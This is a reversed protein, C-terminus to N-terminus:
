KILSSLEEKFISLIKNRFEKPITLASHIGFFKKRLEKERKKAEKLHLKKFMDILAGKYGNRYALLFALLQEDRVQKPKEYIREIKSALLPYLEKHKKEFLSREFGVEKPNCNVAATYLFAKACMPCSYCWRHNRLRKSSCSMVYKLLYPYRHCLIKMEAINYIPKVVSIVQINNNTLKELYYNKKKIYISSQDYSPYIKIKKGNIFFDDLNKENGFAIYKTRFHYAIPVLELSFALMANTGDFEEINYKISRNRFINDTEDLLIIVKEQQDKSFEKILKEKLKLENPNYEGMDNIFVLHCDIGIEKLLGYSLLSDKGFSISLIVKKNSCKNKSFLRKTHNQNQFIIGNVNLKSFKPCEKKTIEYVRPLDKILGYDIFSKFIPKSTQYFIGPNSFLSIPATRCYVINDLLVKKIRNKLNSFLFKPYKVLYESKDFIKIKFYSRGIKYSIKSDSLDSSFQSNNVKRFSKNTEM